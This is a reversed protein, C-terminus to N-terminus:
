FGDRVLAVTLNIWVTRGDRHRYRKEMQFSRRKGEYLEATLVRDQVMDDPHSITEYDLQLLEPEPYGVIDCLAP